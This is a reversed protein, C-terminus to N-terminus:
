SWEAPPRLEPYRMSALLGREGLRRAACPWPRGCSRCVPGAQWPPVTWRARHERMLRAGLRWLLPQVVEDPPHDPDVPGDDAWDDITSM